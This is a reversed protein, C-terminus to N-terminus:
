TSSLTIAFEGQSPTITLVKPDNTPMGDVAFLYKSLMEIGIKYASALNGGVHFIFQGQNTIPDSLANTTAFNFFGEPIKVNYDPSYFRGNFQIIPSNVRHNDPTNSGGLTYTKAQMKSFDTFDFTLTLKAADNVTIASNDQELTDTVVDVSAQKQVLVTAHLTAFNRSKITTMSGDTFLLSSAEAFGKVGFMIDNGTVNLNAASSLRQPGIGTFFARNAYINLTGKKLHACGQWGFMRDPDPNDLTLISTTDLTFITDRDLLFYGNEKNCTLTFPQDGSFTQSVCPKWQFSM